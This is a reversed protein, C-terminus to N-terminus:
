NRLGFELLLQEGTNADIIISYVLNVILLRATRPDYSSHHSTITSEWGYYWRNTTPSFYYVPGPELIEYNEAEDVALFYAEIKLLAEDAPLLAASDLNKFVTDDVVLLSAQLPRESKCNWVVDIKTNWVLVDHYTQIYRYLSRGDQTLLLGDSGVPAVDSFFSYDCAEGFLYSATGRPDLNLSSLGDYALAIFGNTPKQPSPPTSACGALLLILCYFYRM